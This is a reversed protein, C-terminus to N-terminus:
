PGFLVFHQTADCGVVGGARTVWVYVVMTATRSVRACVSSVVPLVAPTSVRTRGTDGKPGICTRTFNM